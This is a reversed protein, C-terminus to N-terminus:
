RLLTVSGKQVVENGRETTYVLVYAFVQPNLTKGNQKGDWTAYGAPNYGLDEVDYVQNGWRSYLSFRDISRVGPKMFICLRDNIGDNNPTFGTPVFVPNEFSVAITVTDQAICGASDTATVFFTTTELPTAYPSAITSDSLLHGETWLWNLDQLNHRTELRVSDGLQIEAGAITEISLSDKEFLRFTGTTDCGDESTVEWEYEGPVNFEFRNIGNQVITPGFLMSMDTPDQTIIDLRAYDSPNCREDLFVADVFPRKKLNITQSSTNYCQGNWGTTLSITIEGGQYYLHEFDRLFSTDGDGLTYVYSSILDAATTTNITVPVPGCDNADYTLMFDAAPTREIFVPATATDTCGLTSTVILSATYLGSEEYIHTPNCGDGFGGDGFTWRCSNGGSGVSNLTVAQGACLSDSATIQSVPQTLIQLNFSSDRRCGEASITTALLNVTTDSLSYQYNGVAVATSDTNNFRLGFNSGNGGLAYDFVEFPCIASPAEITLLPQELVRVHWNSSDYGCGSAYVTFDYLGSNTFVHSVTDDSYVNGDSFVLEYPANPTSNNTVVFPENVCIVTDAFGPLARVDTPGVTVVAESTDMRCTNAVILQITLDRPLSDTVPNLVPPQFTNFVQGDSTSWMSSGITGTGLNTAILDAGSCPESYVIGINAVPNARVVLQFSDLLDGCPNLTRLYITYTTDELPSPFSVAQPATTTDLGAGYDWVYTLFESDVVNARTFTVSEGPCVTDQSAQIGIAPPPELIRASSSVTPAACLANGTQPHLRVGRLTVTYIDANAYTHCTTEGSGSNGDGFGWQYADAPSGTASFDICDVGACGLTDAVLGVTPQSLVSVTLDATNCGEPLAAVRYSFSFDGAGSISIDNGSIPLDGTWNGTVPNTTPLALTSATDCLYIHDTALSVGDGAVITVVRSDESECLGGQDFVLRYTYDGPLLNGINVTGDASANPGLWTGGQNSGLFFSNGGGCITTDPGADPMVIGTITVIATDRALCGPLSEYTIVVEDMTGVSLNGPIYAGTSTNTVGMGSFTFTADNPTFQLNLRDPLSLEASTNCLSISDIAELTPEAEVNAMFSGVETCGTNANNFSYTLEYSGPSLASPDFEYIMPDNVGDGELTGGAPSPNLSLPDATVCIDFDAPLSIEQDFISLTISTTRECDGSGVTYIFTYDGAGASRDFMAEDGNIVLGNAPTWSGNAVDVQIRVMSTDPCFSAGDNPFTISPQVADLVMFDDTEEFNRCETMKTAVIQYPMNSPPLTVPFTTEVVGNITYVADPDFPDPTYSLSPCADEQANLTLVESEIVEIEISEMDDSACGNSGRLTFTFTGSQTFRVTLSDNTTSGVFQFGSGSGSWQYNNVNVTGMTTFLVETSPGNLCVRYNNASIEFAGTDVIAMVDPLGVATIGQSVSEDGCPNMARLRFNQPGIDTIIFSTDVANTTTGDPLTWEYVMTPDNSPCTNNSLFVEEGICYPGPSIGIEPEPPKQFGILRSVNDVSGDAYSASVEIRYCDGQITPNACDNLYNCADYIGSVPFIYEQELNAPDTIEVVVDENWILTILNFAINPNPVIRIMVLSDEACRNFDGNLIDFSIDDDSQALLSTVGLGSVFFFLLFLWAKPSFFKM